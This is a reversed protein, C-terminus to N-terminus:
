EEKPLFEIELTKTIKKLNKASTRGSSLLMPVIFVNVINLVTKRDVIISHIRIIKLFVKVTNCTTTDSFLRSSNFIKANSAILIIVVVKLPSKAINM